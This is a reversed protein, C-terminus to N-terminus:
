KLRPECTHVDFVTRAYTAQEFLNQLRLIRPIVCVTDQVRVSGDAPHLAQSSGIAVGVAM